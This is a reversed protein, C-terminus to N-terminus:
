GGDTTLTPMVATVSGVVCATAPEMGPGSATAVVVSPVPLTEIVTTSSPLEVVTPKPESVPPVTTSIEPQITSTEPQVTSTVADDAEVAVTTSPLDTAVVTSAPAVDIAPCVPECITYYTWGDESKDPTGLCRWGGPGIPVGVQVPGTAPGEASVVCLENNATVVDPAPAMSVVTPQVVCRVVPVPAPVTTGSGDGDAATAPSAVRGSDDRKGALAVIGILAPVAIATAMGAVLRRRRRVVRRHVDAITGGGIQASAARRRLSEGLLHDIEHENDTM